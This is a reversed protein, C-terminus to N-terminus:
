FLGGFPNSGDSKTTANRVMAQSAMKSVRDIHEQQDKAIEALVKIGRALNKQIKKHNPTGNDIADVISVMHKILDDPKM